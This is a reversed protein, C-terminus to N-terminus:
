VMVRVWRSSPSPLGPESAKPIIPISSVTTVMNVRTLSAGGWRCRCGGRAETHHSGNCPRPRQQLSRRTGGRKALRASAGKRLALEHRPDRQHQHQRGDEVGAGRLHVAAANHSREHSPRCAQGRADGSCAAVNAAAASGVWSRVGRGGRGRHGARGRTKESAPKHDHRQYRDVQGGLRGRAWHLLECLVKSGEGAGRAVLGVGAAARVASGQPGRGKKAHTRTLSHSLSHAHTAM